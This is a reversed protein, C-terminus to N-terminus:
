SPWTVTSILPITCLFTEWETQFLNPPPSVACLLGLAAFAVFSWHAISQGLLTCDIKTCDGSGRSIMAITSMLPFTESMCYLDRECACVELPFWLLGNRGLAVFTGAAAPSLTLAM